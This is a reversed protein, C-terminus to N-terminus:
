HHQAGTINVGEYVVHTEEVVEEVADGDGPLNHQADFLGVYMSGDLYLCPCFLKVHVKTGWCAFPQSQLVLKFDKYKGHGCCLVYNIPQQM